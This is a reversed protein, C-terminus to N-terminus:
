KSRPGVFAYSSPSLSPLSLSLAVLAAPHPLRCMRDLCRSGNGSSSLATTSRQMTHSSSPYTLLHSLHPFCLRLVVAASRQELGFLDEEERSRVGPPSGPTIIVSMKYVAAPAELSKREGEIDDGGVFSTM